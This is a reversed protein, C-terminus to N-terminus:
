GLPIAQVVDAWLYGGNISSQLAGFSSYHTEWAAAVEPLGQLGFYGKVAALTACSLFMSGHLAGKWGYRAGFGLGVLGLAIMAAITDPPYDKNVEALFEKIAAILAAVIDSHETDVCFSATQTEGPM